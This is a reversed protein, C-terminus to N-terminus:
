YQLGRSEAVEQAAHLEDQYQRGGMAVEGALQDIADTLEEDSYSEYKEVFGSM